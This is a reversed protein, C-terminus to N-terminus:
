KKNFLDHAMKRLNDSSENSKSGGFSKNSESSSSSENLKYNESIENSKSNVASESSEPKVRSINISNNSNEGVRIKEKMDKSDEESHNHIDESNSYSNEVNNNQTIQNAMSNNGSEYMMSAKLLHVDFIEEPYPSQHLEVSSQALMYGLAIDQQSAYNERIQILLQRIVNLSDSGESIVKQAISKLKNYSKERICKLIQSLNDESALGLMKQMSSETIKQECLLSAQELISIAQRMSGYSALFIMDIANKEIDIGYQKSLNQIHLKMSEQKISELSIRFCRSIITKPIKDIDTTALVFQTYSNPEELTKLLASIASRSLMHVEDIIYIRKKANVPRYVSGELLNRISDVSTNSAGDLEFVDPHINDICDLCNKCVGCPEDNVHDKCCFWQAILRALTTKGVGAPGHLLCVNGLLDRKLGNHLLKVALEQGIVDRFKRPRAQKPLNCKM